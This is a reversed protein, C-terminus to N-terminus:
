SDEGVADGVVHGVPLRSTTDALDEVIAAVRRARAVDARRPATVHLRGVPDLLCLLGKRLIVRGVVLRHPTITGDLDHLEKFHASMREASNPEVTTM